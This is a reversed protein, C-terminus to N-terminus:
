YRQDDSCTSVPAKPREVAQNSEYGRAVFDLFQDGVACTPSVVAGPVLLGGAAKHPRPRRVPQRVRSLDPELRRGAMACPDGRARGHRPRCSSDLRRPWVRRRGRGSGHPDKGMPMTSGDDCRAGLNRFLAVNSGRDIQLIDLMGDLNFDAILAGRGTRKGSIGALDGAEAFKGSWQGLLLNSPDYAAFDPMQSLNGKSVFIDLLGANNFDAFEAHWATSPRKDGGTYPIHATVGVEGAIDRYVPLEGRGAEDPDLKQLKEDGMSTLFYEPYGSGDIDGEAIGMGFISLHRWGDARTYPRPTKGPEIRWMQEEGGRYYQRDNSIRLSPVGSKNWDTFLMSLACFGPALATRM